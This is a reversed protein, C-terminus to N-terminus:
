CLYQKNETQITYENQIDIRSISINLIIIILLIKNLVM